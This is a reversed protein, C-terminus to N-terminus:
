AFDPSLNPRFDLRTDLANEPRPLRCPVLIQQQEELPASIPFLGVVGKRIARDGVVSAGHASKEADHGLFGVANDAVTAHGKKAVRRDANGRGVRLSLKEAGEVFRQGVIWAIERERHRIQEVLATPRSQCAARADGEIM